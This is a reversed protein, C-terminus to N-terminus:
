AACGESGTVKVSYPLPLLVSRHVSWPGFDITLRVPQDAFTVFEEATKLSCGQFQARVLVSMAGHPALRFPHFPALQVAGPGWPGATASPNISVSVLHLPDDSESSGIQDITVTFPSDNVLTFGYELWEGDRYPVGFGVFLRRGNSSPDLAELRTLHGSQSRVISPVGGHNARVPNYHSAGYWATTGAATVLFVALAAGVVILRRPRIPATATKSDDSRERAEEAIADPDGLRDLVARVDADTPPSLEALSEVVHEQIQAIIEERRDVPLGEMSQDLRRLYEGVAPHQSGSM